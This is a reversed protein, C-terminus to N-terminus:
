TLIINCYINVNSIIHVFCLIYIIHKTYEIFISIGGILLAIPLYYVNNNLIYHTCGYTISFRDYLEFIYKYEESIDYEISYHYLLSAICLNLNNIIYWYPDTNYCLKTFFLFFLPTLSKVLADM